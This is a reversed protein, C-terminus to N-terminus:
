YDAAMQRMRTMQVGYSSRACVIMKDIIKIMM